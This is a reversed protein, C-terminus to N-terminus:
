PDFVELARQWGGGYASASLQRTEPGTVALSLALHRAPPDTWLEPWEVVLIARSAAEDLGLEALDEPEGLRYLDAHWIERADGTREYVNVLTYSPSPVALDPIGMWTQILARALHSKGAGLPGSLLVTDGPALVSGIAAGLRATEDPSSLRLERQIVSRESSIPPRMSTEPM